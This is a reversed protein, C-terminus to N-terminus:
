IFIIKKLIIKEIKDEKMKYNNEKLKNVINIFDEYKSRYYYISPFTLIYLDDLEKKIEFGLQSYIEKNFYILNKEAISFIEIKIPIM